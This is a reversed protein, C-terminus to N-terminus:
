WNEQHQSQHALRKLRNNETKKSTQNNQKKLKTMVALFASGIWSQYRYKRQFTNSNAVVNPFLIYKFNIKYTLHLLHDLNMGKWADNM